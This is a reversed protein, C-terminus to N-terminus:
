HWKNSRLIEILDSKFKDILESIKCEINNDYPKVMKSEKGVPIAYYFDQLTAILNSRNFPISIHPSDSSILFLPKDTQIQNDSVVFDADCHVTAYESCFLMLTQQLLLCECEFSIKM